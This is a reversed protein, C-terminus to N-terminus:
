SFLGKLATGGEKVYMFGIVQKKVAYTLDKWVFYPIGIYVWRIINGNTYFGLIDILKITVEVPDGLLKATYYIHNEVTFSDGNEYDVGQILNAEKALDTTFATPNNNRDTRFSSPTM